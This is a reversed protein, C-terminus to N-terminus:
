EIFPAKAGTYGLSDIIFSKGNGSIHLDFRDAVTDALSEAEESRIMSIICSVPTSYAGVASLLGTRSIGKGKCRSLVVGKNERIFDVAEQEFDRNIILFYMSLENIENLKPKRSYATNKKIKKVAIKHKKDTKQNIVKQKKTKEKLIKKEM